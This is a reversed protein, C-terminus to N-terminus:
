KKVTVVMLMAASVIVILALTAHKSSRQNFLTALIGTLLSGACVLYLWEGSHFWGRLCLITPILMSWATRRWSLATREPQLGPDRDSM